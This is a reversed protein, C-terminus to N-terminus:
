LFELSLRRSVPGLKSDLQRVVRASAVSPTWAGAHRLAWCADSSAQVIDDADALSADIRRSSHLASGADGCQFALRLENMLGQSYDGYFQSAHSQLALARGYEMCHAYASALIECARLASEKEPWGDLVSQALDTSTAHEGRAMHWLGCSVRWFDGPVLRQGLAALDLVSVDEPNEPTLARQIATMAGGWPEDMGAGSALRERVKALPVPDVRENTSRYRMIFLKEREGELLRTRCAQRLIEALEARHVSILERELADSVAMASVPEETRSRVARFAARRDARLFVSRPRSALERLLAELEPTLLAELETM